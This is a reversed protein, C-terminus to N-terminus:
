MMWWSSWPITLSKASLINFYPLLSWALVMAVVFSLFSFLLSETLFQKILGIRYSGVVKRLGVEKARNASKATSLNIFNICAIILIFCAVGGFLWVFRIDGHILGEHVDYSKLHIDGVVQLHLSSSKIAKEVDKDGAGVMSPVVYNKLVHATMKKELAAINTGPRLLVYNTYNSSRWSPQEGPWFEIDKLTLLFDWQLHSTSPFDQMVGGIKYIRSKNNNLLLLKGVPNQHPFYKDAKKKSIVISFPDALAHARDGYVMPIQLIDLVQQDAYTFGQEYVNEQQGAPRIYNNGAGWFLPNPMLRGAMEVEPFDKKLVGAMPPPMDAGKEIKGNDNYEEIIRYIRDADPYSHDYSLEDKIYLAILLCAAISLSFGGIKIASYMKQKRLQRLAIKVYNKLMGTHQANM